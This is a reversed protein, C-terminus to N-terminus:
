PETKSREKRVKEMLDDFLPVIEAAFEPDNIHLDFEYVAINSRLKARLAQVYTHNAKDDFFLLGKRNYFSFGRRPIAVAAPGRAENLREAVVTALRTMQDANARVLTIHPNHPVFPHHRYIKPVKELEAFTMFDASGPVLLRPVGAQGSVVLREENAAHIGGFLEDTVEHTTLDLLGNLFGETALEEMALGGTGNPHFAIVEYGRQELLGKAALGGPTTTGYITIGVKIRASRVESSTEKAMGVAAGAANSLIRRTLSNVGLIDVVSHMITIDRTGTYIGFPTRGSAVTSVMVKPVGLPLARMATTCIETGQAGGLGVVSRFRGEEYLGRLIKASGKAMARIGRDRVGKESSQAVLQARNEGGKKAIEDASFDPVLPTLNEGGLIGTDLVLTGYGAAEIRSKLYAAEPGKTDLTAIIVVTKDPKERM